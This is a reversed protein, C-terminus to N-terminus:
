QRGTALRVQALFQVVAKDYDTLDSAIADLQRLSVRPRVPVSARLHPPGSNTVATIEGSREGTWRKEPLRSSALPQDLPRTM